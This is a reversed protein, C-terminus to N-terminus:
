TWRIDCRVGMRDVHLHFVSSTLAKTFSNELNDTLAVKTVIIDVRRLTERIFHYKREIHKGGKHNKSNKSQVVVGNNDCCLKIPLQAQLAM